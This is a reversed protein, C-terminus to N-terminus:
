KKAIGAKKALADLQEFTMDHSWFDIRSFEIPKKKGFFTKKGDKFWFSAFYEPNAFSSAFVFINKKTKTVSVMTAQSWDLPLKELVEKSEPLTEKGMKLVEEKKDAILLNRIEGMKNKVEAFDKETFFVNTAALAQSFLAGVVVTNGEKIKEDSFNPIRSRWDLPNDSEHSDVYLELFAKVTDGAALMVLVPPPVSGDRRFLPTPIPQPNGRLIDGIVLEADTCVPKDGKKQWEMLLCVDSWPNYFLVLIADKTLGNLSGISTGFFFEWGNKPDSVPSLVKGLAKMQKAGDETCYEEIAKTSDVCASLRFEGLREALELTKMGEASYASTLAALFLILCYNLLKM